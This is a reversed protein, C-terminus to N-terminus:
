ERPGFLGHTRSLASGNNEFSTHDAVSRNRRDNRGVATGIVRRAVTRADIWNKSACRQPRTATATWPDCRLGQDPGVPLLGTENDLQRYFARHTRTQDRPGVAVCHGAVAEQPVAIASDGSEVRRTGACAAECACEREADVWRPRDGSAIVVCAKRRVAKHPGAVASDDSEVRGAGDRADLELACGWEADVRRPLDRSVVLVHVKRSM